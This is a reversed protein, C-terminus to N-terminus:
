KGKYRSQNGVLSPTKLHVNNDNKSYLTTAGSLAQSGPRGTQSGIPLEKGCRLADILTITRAYNLDEYYDDNIQVVPANVCAGLCEVEVVSFLNDDSTETSCVGTKDKIAQLVEDSGCLWCPTTTCVQLLYRGVPALHFMTYFTAVEYARIRPVQLLDAVYDMAVRPLWNNHQRQALDLLPLLASQKWDEPYQSIIRDALARNQANFEFQTPQQIKPASTQVNM